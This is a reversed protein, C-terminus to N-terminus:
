YVEFNKLISDNAVAIDRDKNVKDIFIDWFKQQFIQLIM